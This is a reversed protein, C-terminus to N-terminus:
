PTNKSVPICVFAQLPHWCCYFLAVVTSLIPKPRAEVDGETDHLTQPIQPTHLISTLTLYLKHTKVLESWSVPQRSWIDEQSLQCSLNVFLMGNFSRPLFVRLASRYDRYRVLSVIFRRTDVYIVFRSEGRVVIQKQRDSDLVTICPEVSDCLRLIDWILKKAEAM